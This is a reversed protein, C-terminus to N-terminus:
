VGTPVAADFADSVFRKVPAGRGAAALAELPVKLSRRMGDVIHSSGIEVLVFIRTPRSSGGTQHVDRLARERSQFLNHASPDQPGSESGVVLRTSCEVAHDVLARDRDNARTADIVDRVRDAPCRFNPKGDGHTASAVAHRTVRDSVPRQHEVERLPTPDREIWGRTPRLRLAATLPEVDVRSGLRM